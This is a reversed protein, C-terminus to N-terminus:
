LAFPAKRFNRIFCLPGKSSVKLHAVSIIFAAEAHSGVEEISTVVPPEVGHLKERSM